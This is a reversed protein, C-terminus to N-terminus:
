IGRETIVANKEGLVIVQPKWFKAELADVETFSMITLRDGPKGLHAAAGNLVIEGSGRDGPIAYTEFRAANAMNSCLIREYPLLGVKDMLERDITMSGEYDLNAATVEARHIKSKLLHVLMKKNQLM